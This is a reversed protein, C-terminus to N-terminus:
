SAKGGLMDLPPEVTALYVSAGTGQSRYLGSDVIGWAPLLVVVSM